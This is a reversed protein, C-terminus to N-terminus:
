LWFTVHVANAIKAINKEIYRIGLFPTAYLLCCIPVGTGAPPCVVFPRRHLLHCWYQWQSRNSGLNFYFYQVCFINKARQWFLETNTVLYLRCHIFEGLIFNCSAKNLSVNVIKSAVNDSSHRLTILLAGVPAKCCAISVEPRPVWSVLITVYFIWARSSFMVWCCNRAVSFASETPVEVKEM